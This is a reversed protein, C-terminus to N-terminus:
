SRFSVLCKARASPRERLSKTLLSNSQHNATMHLCSSRLICAYGQTAGFCTSTVAAFRGVEDYGYAVAYDSGLAFGAARGLADYNRVLVGMANSESALQLGDYAFTRTGQGDMITTQRGLRDYAFSVNTATTTLTASYHINTMQGIADYAYETEV